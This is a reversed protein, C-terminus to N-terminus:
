NLARLDGGGKLREINRTVGQFLGLLPISSSECKFKILWIFLCFAFYLYFPLNWAILLIVGAYSHSHWFAKMFGEHPFMFLHSFLFNDNEEENPIPVLTLDKNKYVGFKNWKWKRLFVLVYFCFRNLM